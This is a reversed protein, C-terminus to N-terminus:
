CFGGADHVPPWGGVNGGAALPPLGGYVQPVGGDLPPLGGFVAQVGGNQPPQGGFAPQVGGNQPPQGNGVVPRENGLLKQSLQEVRLFSDPLEGVRDPRSQGSLPKYCDPVSVGGLPVPKESPYHQVM